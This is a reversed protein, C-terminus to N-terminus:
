DKSNMARAHERKYFQNQTLTIQSGATINTNTKQYKRTNYHILRQILTSPQNPPIPPNIKYSTSPILTPIRPSHNFPHSSTIPSVRPYSNVGSDDSTNSRRKIPLVTTTSSLPVISFPISDATTIEKPKNLRQVRREMFRRGEIMPPSTEEKPYFEVLQNRHLTKLTTPDKDDLIQNATNTIRETM